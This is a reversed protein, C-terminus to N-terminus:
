DKIWQVEDVYFAVDSRTVTIMFLGFIRERDATLATGPITLQQWTDAGDWGHSSIWAMYKSGSRNDSQIEVKLDVPTKVWFQLNGYSSLNAIRDEPHILFIGWGAYNGSGEGSHCYFCTDGEPASSDYHSANFVGPAKGWDSGDWTWIDSFQTLGLDNYLIYDENPVIPELPSNDDCSLALCCALLIGAVLLIRYLNMKEGENLM